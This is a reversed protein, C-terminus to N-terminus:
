PAPTIMAVKDSGSPRPAPVAASGEAMRTIADRVVEIRRGAGPHTLSVNFPFPMLKGTRRLLREPASLDFGAAAILEVGMADAAMEFKRVKGSGIGLEALLLSHGQLHQNHSLINHAMEHAVVFALEHDDGAFRMMKSTVAVYHGDSWANLTNDPMVVVEGGCGLDGTLTLTIDQGARRVTVAVLGNQMAQQLYGTFRETRDYTARATTLHRAFDALDKGNVGVIEDGKHLGARMAAGDPVVDLVGFGYTIHYHRLSAARVTLAYSAEDHLMMGSLMEPTSCRGANARALRNGIIALRLDDNMPSGAVLKASTAPGALAPAVPVVLAVLASSLMLALVLPKDSAVRDSTNAM